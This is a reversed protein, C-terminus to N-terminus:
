IQQLSKSIQPKVPPIGVSVCQCWLKRRIARTDRYPATVFNSIHIQIIYSIDGDIFLNIFKSKKKFKSFLNNMKNDINKNTSVHRATRIEGSM